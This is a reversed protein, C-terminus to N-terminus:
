VISSKGAENWLQRPLFKCHAFVACTGERIFAISLRSAGSNKLFYGESPGSKPM